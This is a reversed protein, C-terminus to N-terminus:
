VDANETEKQRWPLGAAIDRLKQRIPQATCISSAPKRHKWGDLRWAIRCGKCQLKASAILGDVEPPRPM